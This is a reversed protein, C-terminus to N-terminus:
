GGIRVTMHYKEFSKKLKQMWEAKPPMLDKSFYSKGLAEYKLVGLRHYPLLHIEHRCPLDRIFFLLAEMDELTDNYGPIIPIRLIIQKELASLYRLNELISKNSVGTFRIHKEEDIVKLDYLFLDVCSLARQLIERSYFGTTEVATHIKRKHFSELLSLAFTPQFFPEGGSLTIGGGSTEYFETDKLCDEVVEDTCISRGYCQIAKAYCTKACNGCLTCHVTDRLLGEKEFHLAQENCVTVCSKDGICKNKYFAFEPEKKQSEPNACWLCRLPCGKMFIVTRIGPGDHICYKQIDFIIGKM